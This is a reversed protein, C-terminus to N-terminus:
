GLKSKEVRIRNIEVERETETMAVTKAEVSRLMEVVAGVCARM